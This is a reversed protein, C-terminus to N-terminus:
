IDHIAYEKRRQQERKYRAKFIMEAQAKWNPGILKIKQETTMTPCTPCGEEHNAFIKSPKGDRFCTNCFMEDESYNEEDNAKSETTTNAEKPNDSTNSDNDNDNGDEERVVNALYDEIELLEEPHDLQAVNAILSAKFLWEKSIPEHWGDSCCDSSSGSDPEMNEEEEVEDQELKGQNDKENQPNDGAYKKDPPDPPKSGTLREYTKYSAVCDVKFNEFLNRVVKASLHVTGQVVGNHVCSITQDIYGVSRVDEGLYNMRCVKIKQLPIKMKNVLDLDILNYGGHQLSSSCTIAFPIKGCVFTYDAGNRVQVKDTIITM